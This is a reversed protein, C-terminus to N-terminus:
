ATARGGPLNLVVVAALVLAGGTAQRTSLSEALFAVALLVTFVPELTSLLSATTPGVRKLGALFASIPIITSFLIMALLIAAQSPTLDVRWEGRLWTIMGFTTFGGLLIWATPVLTGSGRLARESLLIYGSYWVASALVFAVGLGDLASRAPSTESGTPSVTLVMGMLALGM